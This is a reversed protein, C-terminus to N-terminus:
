RPPQGGGDADRGWRSGQRTGRRLMRERLDRLLGAKDLAWDPAVFLEREREGTLREVVIDPRLRELLGAMLELYEERGLLPLRGAAFLEELQTGRLVHLPHFKVGRPRIRNMEAVTEAMDAPSEGPIGVILHVVVGIGIAALRRFTELFRAYTHRRQLFLLSREHVSQLGLEVTLWTRRNLEALHPLLEEAVADPRTGISLGVVDPHDLAAQYLERLRDLPAHTNAHAQLYSIFLYGPHAAAFRSVQERVPLQFGTLPGAGRADCFICGDRGIGGDKNPCSLGGDLPIKIVRRGFRESLFARQSYWPENM